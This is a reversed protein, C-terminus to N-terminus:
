SHQPSASVTTAPFDTLHARDGTSVSESTSVQCPRPTFRSKLGPVKEMRGAEVLGLTFFLKHLFIASHRAQPPIVRAIASKMVCNRRSIRVCTIVVALLCKGVRRGFDCLLLQVAADSTEDLVLRLRLIGTV